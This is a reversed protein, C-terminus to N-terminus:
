IAGFSVHMEVLGVFGIFSFALPNPLDWVLGQVYTAIRFGSPSKMM